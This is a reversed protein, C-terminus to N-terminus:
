VNFADNYHLEECTGHNKLRNLHMDVGLYRCDVCELKLRINCYISRTNNSGTM